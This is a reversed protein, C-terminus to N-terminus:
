LPVPPTVDARTGNKFIKQAILRPAANQTFALGLLKTYSITVNPMSPNSKVPQKPAPNCSLSLAVRRPKPPLRICFPACRSGGGARRGVGVGRMVGGTPAARDCRCQKQPLSSQRGRDGM